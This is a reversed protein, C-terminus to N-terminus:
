ARAAPSPCFFFGPARIPEPCQGCVFGRFSAPSLRSRGSEPLLLFGTRTDAGPVAGLCLGSLVGSKPALPRVRAFSSVRLAYRSRASGPFRQCFFIGAMFALMPGYLFFLGSRLKRASARSQLLPSFIHSNYDRAAKGMFCFARLAFQSRVRDPAPSPFRVRTKLKPLQCEAM